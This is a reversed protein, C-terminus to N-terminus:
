WSDVKISKILGSIMKNIIEAEEKLEIYNKDNIWSNNHFLTILTITEYLSGRSIYLFHKFEKKSYRGSGEAINMSISTVASELQEILRYHKRNTELYDILNIIKNAYDVSKVWIDLKEFSFM